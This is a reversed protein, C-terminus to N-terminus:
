KKDDKVEEFEADVIDDDQKADGQPQEAGGAQEAQAKQQAIEMLKQSAEALATTKAEIAEKDEGKTADKLEKLAAEIKEKEDTALADGAEDIQKRTAHIM